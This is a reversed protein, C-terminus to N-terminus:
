VAEHISETQLELKQKGFQRLHSFYNHVWLRNDPREVPPRPVDRRVSTGSFYYM